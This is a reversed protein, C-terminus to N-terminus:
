NLEKKAHKKKRREKRDKNILLNENKESKKQKM